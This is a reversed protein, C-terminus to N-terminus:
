ILTYNISFFFQVHKIYVSPHTQAQSVTVVILTVFIDMVEMLKRTDKNTHTHPTTVVRLMLYIM